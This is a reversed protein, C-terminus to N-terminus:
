SDVYLWNFLEISQTYGILENATKVEFTQTNLYMELLKIEM